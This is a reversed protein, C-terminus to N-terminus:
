RPKRSEVSPPADGSGATLRPCDVRRHSGHWQPVSCLHAYRCILRPAVCKGANWSHCFVTASAAGRPELPSSSAATVSSPRSAGTRALSAGSHFNFLEVHMSSWDRIQRAAADRRFAEDYDCWVTGPFQSALRLILLHYRLLDLARHPHYTVLVLSYIGFAQSWLTLDTIRRPPKPTNSIIVRGDVSVSPGPDRSDTPKRILLGLNVYEGGVISVVVKHPIPSFGPGVVLPQKLPPVGFLQMHMGPALPLAPLGVSPAPRAPQIVPPAQQLRAQLLQSEQALAATRDQSRQLESAVSLYHQLLGTAPQAIPDLGPVSSFAQSQVLSSPLTSWYPPQVVSPLSTTPLVPASSSLTAPVALSSPLPAGVSLDGLSPTPWSVPPIYPITPQSLSASTTALGISTSLSPTTASPLSTTLPQSSVVFSPGPLLVDSNIFAASSSVPQDDSVSLGSHIHGSEVSPSALAEIDHVDSSALSNQTRRLAQRKM